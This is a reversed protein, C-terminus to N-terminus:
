AYRKGEALSRIEVRRDIHAASYPVELGVDVADSRVDADAINNENSENSKNIRKIHASSIDALSNLSYLYRATSAAHPAACRLTAAL